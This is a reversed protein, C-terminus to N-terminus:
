SNKVRLGWVSYCRKAGFHASPIFFPSRFLRGLSASQVTLTLTHNASGAENNAFCTYNGAHEPGLPSIQLVGSPLVSDEGDVPVGEFQWSIQGSM